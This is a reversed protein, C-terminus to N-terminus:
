SSEHWASLLRECRIQRPLTGFRGAGPLAAGPALPSGAKEPAGRCRRVEGVMRSASGRARAGGLAPFVEEAVGLLEQQRSGGAIVPVPTKSRKKVDTIAWAAADLETKLLLRSAVDFSFTQVLHLPSGNGLVYDFRHEELQGLVVADRRVYKAPNRRPFETSFASRLTRGAISRLRTRGPEANTVRPQLHVYRSFLEDLLGDLSPARGGLLSSFQLIGGWEEAARRLTEVTWDQSAMGMSLQQPFVSANLTSELEKLDSTVVIV